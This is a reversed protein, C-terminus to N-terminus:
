REKRRGEQCVFCFQDIGGANIVRRMCISDLLQRDFWLVPCLFGTWNLQVVLTIGHVWVQPTKLLKATTWISEQNIGKEEGGEIIVGNDPLFGKETPNDSIFVILILLAAIAVVIFPLFGGLSGLLAYGAQYIMTAVGACLPIGMTVIGM